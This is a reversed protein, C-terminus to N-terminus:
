VHRLVVSNVVCDFVSISQLQGLVWHVTVQLLLQNFPGEFPVYKHANM